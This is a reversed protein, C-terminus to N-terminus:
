EMVSCVCKFTGCLKASENEDIHKGNTNAQHSEHHDPDNATNCTETDELLTDHHSNPSGGPFPCPGLWRDM